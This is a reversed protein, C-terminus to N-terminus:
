QLDARGLSEVIEPQTTPRLGLNPNGQRLDRQMRDFRDRSWHIAYLSPEADVGLAALLASNTMREILLLQREALTFSRNNSTQAWAPSATLIVILVCVIGAIKSCGGVANRYMKRAGRETGAIPRADYTNASSLGM